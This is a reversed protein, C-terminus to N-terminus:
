GSVKKSIFYCTFCISGRLYQQFIVNRFECLAISNQKPNKPTFNSMTHSLTQVQNPFFKVMVGHKHLRNKLIMLDETNSGNNQVVAIM